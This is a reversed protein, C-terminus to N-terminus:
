SVSGPPPTLSQDHSDWEFALELTGDQMRDGQFRDFAEACAQPYNTLRPTSSASCFVRTDYFEV